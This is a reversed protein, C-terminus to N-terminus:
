RSMGGRENGHAREVEREVLLWRARHDALTQLQRDGAPGFAYATTRKAYHNWDRAPEQNHVVPAVTRLTSEIEDPSHGTIRMRLAVMADLRSLDVKQDKYDMAIDRFHMSYAQVRADAGTPISPMGGVSHGDGPVRAPGHPKGQQASRVRRLVARERAQQLAEKLEPNGIKFNYEAALDVCLATFRENGRVIPAEEWKADALQFAALLGARERWANVQIVNGKDVFAPLLAADARVGRVYHVVDDKVIPAFDRIDRPQPPDVRDGVIEQVSEARHRWREALDPRSHERLWREFDPFAPYMARLESREVRQKDRLDLQASARQAALLSELANRLAGKGRWRGQLVDAREKKHRRTLEEREREQRERMEHLAKDKTQYHAHRLGIYTEWGDMGPALPQSRRPTVKKDPAAEFTGLRKELKGLSANRDARSAKVGVDGVFVVAGSGVKEYRMGKAALAQHLQGWNTAALMLPAGDEIAIREASKEGTRMEMDRKPQQPQRSEQRAVDRVVGGDKEVKYRGHDERRWGQRDEIRAVARHAAEIDFGRNPKVVKLTVPHVRNVAIHLHVNATDVHLGYMAQHADLGLEHLFIDVAEEVQRGNPQEGEQWSMVYHNITDRSRVAEQSLALMEARQSHYDSSLFGRAGAYLCKEAANDKEPARIYDVLRGVRAAKSASKKPNKVKKVIM